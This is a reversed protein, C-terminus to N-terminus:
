RRNCSVSLPTQPLQRTWATAGAQSALFHPAAAAIMGLKTVVMSRVQGPVYSFQQAAVTSCLSIMLVGVTTKM